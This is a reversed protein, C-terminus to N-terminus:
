QGGRFQQMFAMAQDMPYGIFVPGTFIMQPVGNSKSTEPPPQIFAPQTNYTPAPQYTTSPQERPEERAKQAHPFPCKGAPMEERREPAQQVDERQGHGFPCKGAPKPLHEDSVPAPPPSVPRQGEPPELIPVSIGWPRSPSEGVRIEKMPRDFRSERDEEDLVMPEDENGIGDTSVGKAWTEVRENSGREVELVDEENSPLMPQHKQGLGQIMSVLNGYKADLKRIDDENRQYRKVCVEHSRPIEHKHTEFYRAVEEPSHQDLYRIPCKAASGNASPPPSAMTEAYLAACIPDSSKHPTPDKMDPTLARDSNLTISGQLAQTAMPPREDNTIRTFPCLLSSKKGQVTFDQELVTSLSTKRASFRMSSTGSISRGSVTSGTAKETLVTLSQAARRGDRIAVATQVKSNTRQRQPLPVFGARDPTSIQLDPPLQLKALTSSIEADGPAYKDALHQYQEHAFRLKHELITKRDSLLQVEDALINFNDSLTRILEEYDVETLPM